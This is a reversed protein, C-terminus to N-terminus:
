SKKFEKDAFFAYLFMGIFTFINIIFTFVFTFLLLMFIGSFVMAVIGATGRQDVAGLLVNGAALNAGTALVAFFLAFGVLLKELNMIAQFTSPKTDTTVNDSM